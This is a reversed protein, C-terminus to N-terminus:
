GWCKRGTNSASNDYLNDAWAYAKVRKDATFVQETETAETRIEPQKRQPDSKLADYSQKPSNMRFFVYKMGHSGINKLASLIGM